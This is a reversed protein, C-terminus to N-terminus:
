RSLFLQYRPESTLLTRPGANCKRWSLPHPPVCIDLTRMGSCKALKGDNYVYGSFSEVTVSADCKDDWHRVDPRRAVEEGFEDISVYNRGISEFM